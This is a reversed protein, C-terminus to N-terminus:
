FKVGLGATATAFDLTIGKAPFFHAYEFEGRLFVNQMLAVDVGIGTDIGYMWVNGTEANGAAFSGCTEPVAPDCPLVPQPTIMQVQGGVLVPTPVTTATTWSVLSASTYNARGVALGVFGYPLFINNAAWGARARLTAYDTLHLSASAGADIDYETEAGTADPANTYTRGMPTSPATATVNPHAYTVEAGLIVNEWQMDYGAFAGVFTSQVSSSGLLPWSSPDFDQEIVTDRLAYAIPAQTANSFNVNGSGFDVDGGAYFGGWRPYSPETIAEPGRLAPGFEQAAAGTAFACLLVACLVRRVLASEMREVRM